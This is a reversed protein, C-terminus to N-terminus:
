AALPISFTFTSGSGPISEVGIHGVHAEVALKCFTLGLGTSMKRGGERSEVQGFKEFIRGFAEPPIGEGTDAVSFEVSKGGDIQHVQVTVTGGTPTFKIANGLLNVLTRLLKDEDACLLPVDDAIEKVITLQNSDALSSVQAVAATVLDPVSLETYVLQMSNSELKEVDLLNNIMGLLTQGGMIAIGVMEMQIANLEGVGELSQMGAIVSTLPTRLDHVVMRTLDERQREMAQLRLHSEQLQSFLLAERDHDRKKDLCAIIRAKLRASDIPKSLHDAAGMEICRVVAHLESLASIVIVPIHELRPDSKIRELVEYGDMEPMMIDLLVLDFMQKRMMELATPGSTAKAVTYGQHELRRALMNCNAEDDDVVLLVGASLESSFSELEAQEEPTAIPDNIRPTKARPADGDTAILNDVITGLLRQGAAHILQLDPTFSDNGEEMAHEILMESYGLIQNLPARLDHILMSPLPHKIQQLENM